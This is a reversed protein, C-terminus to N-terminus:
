DNKDIHFTFRFSTLLSGHSEIMQVAHIVKRKKAFQIMRDVALNLMQGRSTTVFGSSAIIGYIILM